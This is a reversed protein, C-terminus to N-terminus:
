GGLDVVAKSWYVSPCWPGVEAVLQVVVAVVVVGERVAVEHELGDCVCVTLVAM